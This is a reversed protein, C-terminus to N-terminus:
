KYEARFSISMQCDGPPMRAGRSFIKPPGFGERWRREGERGRGKRGRGEKEEGRRREERLICSPTQSVATLEGLPTQPLAGASLSNSANLHLPPWISQPGGLWFKPHVIAM